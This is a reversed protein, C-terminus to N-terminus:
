SNTNVKHNKVFDFDSQGSRGDIFDKLKTADPMEMKQKIPITEASSSSGLDERNIEAIDEYSQLNHKDIHKWSSTHSSTSKITSGVPAIKVILQDNKKFM